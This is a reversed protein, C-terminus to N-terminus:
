PQTDAKTLSFLHTLVLLLNMGEIETLFYTDLFKDESNFTIKLRFTDDQIVHVMIERKPDGRCQPQSIQYVATLPQVKM